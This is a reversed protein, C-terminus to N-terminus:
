HPAPRMTLFLIAGLLLLALGFIAVLISSTRPASLEALSVADATGLMM